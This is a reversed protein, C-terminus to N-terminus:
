ISNSNLLKSPLMGDYAIRREANRQVIVEEVAELDKQFTNMYTLIATHERFVEEVSASYLDKFSDQYEGLVDYRYACLAYQVDITNRTLACAGNTDRLIDLM